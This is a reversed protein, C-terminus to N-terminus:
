ELLGDLRKLQEFEGLDEMGGGPLRAAFDARLNADSVRELIVEVMNRGPLFRDILSQQILRQTMAVHPRGQSQVAELGVPQGDLLLAGRNGVYVSLTGPRPGVEPMYALAPLHGYSYNMRESQHMRALQQRTLWTLAIRAQCGPIAALTSTIAGYRAVHAGYVVDFGSLWGYTVPITASSGFKRLLQEPSRNSGHAVVAYREDFLEPDHRQTLPALAGARLVYSWEPAEYPYDLALSLLEEPDHPLAWIM